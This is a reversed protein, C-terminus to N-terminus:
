ARAVRGRTVLEVGSGPRPWPRPSVQLCLEGFARDGGCYCYRHEANEAHGGTWHLEAPDYPLAALAAPGAGPAEAMPEPAAM